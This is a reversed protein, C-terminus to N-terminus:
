TFSCSYYDGWLHHCGVLDGGFLKTIRDPAVFEGTEPDFGDALMVEGTPDFITGSWNDLVGEPNFAVRLPPGPDVSYTIGNWEEYWKESDETREKAIIAAYSSQNIALRSLDGLYVGSWLLPLAAAVTIALLVPAASALVIRDRIRDASFAAKIGESVWILIVTLLFLPILVISFLAVLFILGSAYASLLGLFFILIATAAFFRVTCGLNYSM